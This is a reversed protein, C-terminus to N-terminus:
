GGTPQTGRRAIGGPMLASAGATGLASLLPAIYDSATSKQGLQGAGMRGMLNEMATRMIMDNFQGLAGVRAQQGAAAGAGAALRGIGTTSGGSLAGRANVGSKFASGVGTANQLLMGLMPNQAGGLMNMVKLLSGPGYAQDLFDYIKWSQHGSFQPM